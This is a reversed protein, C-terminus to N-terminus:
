VKNLMFMALQVFCHTNYILELPLIANEIIIKNQQNLFNQNKQENRIRIKFWVNKINVKLTITFTKNFILLLDSNLKLKFYVSVVNLVKFIM